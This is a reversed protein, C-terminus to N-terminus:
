EIEVKLTSRIKVLHEKGSRDAILIDGDEIRKVKFVSFEDGESLRHSTKKGSSSDTVSLFAIKQGASSDMWGTFSITAFKKPKQQPAPKPQGQGGGSQPKSGPEFRALVRSKGFPDGTKVTSSMENLFAFASRNLLSVSAPSGSSPPPAERAGYLLSIAFYALSFIAFVAAVCLLAKEWDDKISTVIKRTAPM